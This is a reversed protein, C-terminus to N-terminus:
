NSPPPIHHKSWTRLLGFRPRLPRWKNKKKNNPHHRKRLSDGKPVTWLLNKWDSDTDGVPFKRMHQTDPIIPPHFYFTCIIKYIVQPITLQYKKLLNKYYGNAILELYKRMRKEVDPDDCHKIYVVWVESLKVWELMRTRNDNDTEKASLYLLQYDGFGCLANSNCKRATLRSKDDACIMEHKLRHFFDCQKDNKISSM